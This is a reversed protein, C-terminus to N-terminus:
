PVSLRYFRHGPTATLNTITQMLGDGAVSQLTQWIPDNLSDTFQVTYNVGAVTEFSFRFEEGALATDLMVPTGYALGTVTNTIDGGNSLFSSTPTHAPAIPSFRVQLNTSGLGPDCSLPPASPRRAPCVRPSNATADLSGANSIVFSAHALAGTFIPGFTLQTPLVALV